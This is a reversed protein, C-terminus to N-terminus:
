TTQSRRAAALEHGIHVAWADIEPWNRHDGFSGGMAMLFLRGVFSYHNREVAGAFAHHGRPRVIQRVATIKKQEGLARLLRTGASGLMSSQEGVTGVSFTYVPRETLLGRNRQVFGTAEPLWAGNHIASGLVVADYGRIDGAQDLARVQVRYGQAGLGAAIREAIGRTAGHASAYGVLIVM